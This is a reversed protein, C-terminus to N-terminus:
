DLYENLCQNLHWGLFMESSFLSSTCIEMCNRSGFFFFCKYFSSVVKYPEAFLPSNPPFAEEGQQIEQNRREREKMRLVNRDERNMNSCFVVLLKRTVSPLLSPLM